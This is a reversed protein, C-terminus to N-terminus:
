ARLPQQTTRGQPFRLHLRFRCVARPLRWAAKDHGPAGHRGRHRCGQGQRQSALYPLQARAGQAVFERDKILRGKYVFMENSSGAAKCEFYQTNLWEGDDYLPASVDPCYDMTSQTKHRRGHMLKATLEEVLNGIVHRVHGHGGLPEAWLLPQRELSKLGSINM